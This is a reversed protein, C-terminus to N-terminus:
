CLARLTRERAEGRSASSHRSTQRVASRDAHAVGFAAAAAGLLTASLYCAPCHAMVSSGASCIVGYSQMLESMHLWAAEAALLGGGILIVGSRFVAQATNPTPM